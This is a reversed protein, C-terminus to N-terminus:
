LLLSAPRNLYSDILHKKDRLSRTTETTPAFYVRRALRAHPIRRGQTARGGLSTERTGTHKERQKEGFSYDERQRRKGLKLM